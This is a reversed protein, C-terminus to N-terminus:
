QQKSLWDLEWELGQRHGRTLRRVADLKDGRVYTSDAGMRILTKGNRTFISTVNDPNIYVENGEPTVFTVM